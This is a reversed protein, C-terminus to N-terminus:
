LIHNRHVMEHQGGQDTPTSKQLHAAYENVCCFTPDDGVRWCETECNPNADNAIELWLDLSMRKTPKLM